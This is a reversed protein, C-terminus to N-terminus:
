RLIFVEVQVANHDEVGRSLIILSKAGTVIVAMSAPLADLPNAGAPKVQSPVYVRIENQDNPLEPCSIYPMISSFDSHTSALPPVHPAQRNEMSPEYERAQPHGFVGDTSKDRRLWGKAQRYKRDFAHSLRIFIGSDQHASLQEDTLDTEEPLHSYKPTLHEEERATQTSVGPGSAAVDLYDFRGTELAASNLGKIRKKYQESIAGWTNDETPLDADPASFNFEDEKTWDFNDSHSM